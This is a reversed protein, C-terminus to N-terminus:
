HKSRETLTMQGCNVMLKREVDQPNRKEAVAFVQGSPNVKVKPKALGKGTFVQAPPGPTGSSLPLTTSQVEELEEDNWVILADGTNTIGVTPNDVGDGQALTIPTVSWTGGAIQTAGLNTRDGLNQWVVIADHSDNIAVQPSANRGGQSVTVPASWAQGFSMTSVLIDGLSGEQWTLISESNDNIALDMKTIIPNSTITSPASWSGDVPRSAFVLDGGSVWVAMANGSSDICIRPAGNAASQSLTETTGWGTSPHYSNVQISQDTENFWAVWAEQSVNVVVDPMRNEGGSSIPDHSSWSGGSPKHVGCVEGTEANIFAACTHGSRDCAVCVSSNNCPPAFSVPAPFPDGMQVEVSLLERNPAAGEAWLSTFFGTGDLCFSAQHNAGTASLEEPPIWQGRLTLPACCLFLFIWRM